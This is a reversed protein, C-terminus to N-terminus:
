CRSHSHYWWSPVIGRPNARHWLWTQSKHRCSTEISSSPRSAHDSPGPQQSRRTRVVAVRPTQHWWIECAGFERSDAWQGRQCNGLTEHVPLVVHEWRPRHCPSPIATLCSSRWWRFLLLLLLSLVFPDGPISRPRFELSHRTSGRHRGLKALLGVTSPRPSDWSQGVIQCPHKKSADDIKSANPNVHLWTTTPRLRIRLFVTQWTSM